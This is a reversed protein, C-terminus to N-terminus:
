LIGLLKDKNKICSKYEKHVIDYVDRRSNRVTVSQILSLRNHIYKIIFEYYNDRPYFSLNGVNDIDQYLIHIIYEISGGDTYLEIKIGSAALTQTQRPLSSSCFDFSM